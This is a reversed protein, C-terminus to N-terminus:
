IEPWKTVNLNKNEIIFAVGLCELDSCINLVKTMRLMDIKLVPHM